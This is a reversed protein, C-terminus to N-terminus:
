REKETEETGFYEFLNQCTEYKSKRWKRFPVGILAMDYNESCAYKFVIFDFYRWDAVTNSLMTKIFTKELFNANEQMAVSQSINNSPLNLRLLVILVIILFIMASIIIKM